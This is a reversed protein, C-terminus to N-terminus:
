SARDDGVADMAMLRALFRCRSQPTGADVCAIEFVPNRSPGLVPQRHAALAVGLRAGPYGALARLDVPMAQGHNIRRKM